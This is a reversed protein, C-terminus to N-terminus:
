EFNYKSYFCFLIKPNITEYLLAIQRTLPIALNHIRLMRQKNINSYLM